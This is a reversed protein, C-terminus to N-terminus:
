TGLQEKLISLGGMLSNPVYQIHSRAKDLIFGTKAPRRGIQNLSASSIPSILATNLNFFEATRNAIEYVSMLEDGSIHYIGSYDSLALKLTGQAVDEALTPMRYQDNVVNIPKGAELSEKVWLMLNSRTMLQTIGYVLITRVIIFNDLESTIIKEAELKSLGYFSVPNPEDHESYLGSIGDFVFDTSLHVLRINNQKAITTLYQVADVNVKWCTDKDKECDDVQTIAACNIIINPNFDNVCRVVEFENSIDLLHFFSETPPLKNISRSAAILELKDNLLIQECIKQGILGNSGIVLIRIKKFRTEM